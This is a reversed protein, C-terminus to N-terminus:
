SQNFDLFKDAERSFHLYALRIMHKCTFSSRQVTRNQILKLASIIRRTKTDLTLLPIAISEV